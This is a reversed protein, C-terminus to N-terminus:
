KRMWNSIEGDYLAKVYDIDRQSPEQKGDRYPRLVADTGSGAYSSDYKTDYPAKSYLSILM